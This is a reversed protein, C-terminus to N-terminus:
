TKKLYEMELKLRDLESNMNFIIWSLYAIAVFMLVTLDISTLMKWIQLDAAPKRKLAEKKLASLEKELPHHTFTQPGTPIPKQIPLHKEVTQLKELNSDLSQVLKEFYTSLADMAAREIVV